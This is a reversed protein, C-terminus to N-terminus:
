LFAQHAINILCQMKYMYCVVCTHIHTHMYWYWHIPIYTWEGKKKIELSVVCSIILVPINTLAPWVSSAKRLHNACSVRNDCDGLM